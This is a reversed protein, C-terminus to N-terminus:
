TASSSSPGGSRRTPMRAKSISTERRCYSNSRRRRPRWRRWTRRRRRRRARRSPSCRPPPPPPPPAPASPPPTSISTRTARPSSQTRCEYRLGEQRIRVVELLGLYRCQTLVQSHAFGFAAKHENPKICRVYHPATDTLLDMLPEKGGLGAEKVSSGSRALAAKDGKEMLKSCLGIGLRMKGSVTGPGAVKAGTTSSAHKTLSAAAELKKGFWGGGKKKGDGDGGGEGGGGPLQARLFELGDCHAVLSLLDSSSFNDDNKATFGDVAYAVKGAYHSITFLGDRDDVACYAGWERQNGKVVEAVNGLFAGDDAKKKKAQDDLRAFVASLLRLRPGSDAFKIAFDGLGESGSSRSSASSRNSSWKTSTSRFCRTSTTSASSSSRTSRSSRSASSTSSASAVEVHVGLTVRGIVNWDFCLQYIHMVLWDFLSSYVVKHRSDRAFGAATPSLPTEIDQAGAKIARKDASATAWRRSRRDGSCRRARKLM